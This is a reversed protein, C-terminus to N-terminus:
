KAVLVPIPSSNIFSNQHSNFIRLLLSSESAGIVLLDFENAIELVVDIPNGNRLIKKCIIGENNFISAFKNLIENSEEQKLHELSAYDVIGSEALVITEPIVHLLTLEIESRRAFLKIITPIAKRCEETDSVGFLIKIADAM